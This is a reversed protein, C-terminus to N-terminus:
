NASHGIPRRWTNRYFVSHHVKKADLERLAGAFKNTCASCLPAAMTAPGQKGCAHCHHEKYDPNKYHVWSKFDDACLPRDVDCPQQAGCRICFGDKPFGAGVQAGPTNSYVLTAVSLISRVEDVCEQYAPGDTSQELRVGMERNKDESGNLLNLSTVVAETENVFCKAHLVDLYYITINDVEKFLAMVKDDMKRKGFVLTIRVGKKAADKLRELYITRPIVYASLLMLEKRATRIVREIAASSDTATLFTAM